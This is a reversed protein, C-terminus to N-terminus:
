SYLEEDNRRAPGLTSSEETPTWQCVTRREMTLDGLSQPIAISLPCLAAVFMAAGVSSQPVEDSFRHLSFGDPPPRPFREYASETKM